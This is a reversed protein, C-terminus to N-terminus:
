SLFHNSLASVLLTSFWEHYLIIIVTSKKSPSKELELQTQNANFGKGVKGLAM